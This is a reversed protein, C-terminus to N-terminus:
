RGIRRLFCTRSGIFRCRGRGSTLRRGRRANLLCEHSRILAKGAMTGLGIRPRLRSMSLRKSMKGFLVARFRGAQLAMDGPEAFRTAIDRPRFFIQQHDTALGAVARTRAMHISRLSKYQCCSWILLSLDFLFHPLRYYLCWGVGYANRAVFCLGVASM